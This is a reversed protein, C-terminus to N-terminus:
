GRIVCIDGDTGVDEAPVTASVYCIKVFDRMFSVARAALDNKQEETLNEYIFSDGKPGKINGLLIKETGM